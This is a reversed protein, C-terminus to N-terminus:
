PIRRRYPKKPIKVEEVAALNDDKWFVGERLWTELQRHGRLTVSKEAADIKSAFFHANAHLWGPRRLADVGEAFNNFTVKLTKKLWGGLGRVSLSQPALGKDELARHLSSLVQGAGDQWDPASRFRVTVAHDASPVTDVANSDRFVRLGLHIRPRLEERAAIPLLRPLSAAPLSISFVRNEADFVAMDRRWGEPTEKLLSAYARRAAFARAPSFRVTMRLDDADYNDLTHDAYPDIGRQFVDAEHSLVAAAKKATEFDGFRFTVVPGKDHHRAKEFATPLLPLPM